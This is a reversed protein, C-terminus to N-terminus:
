ELQDSWRLFAAFDLYRELVGRQEDATRSGSMKYVFEALKGKEDLYLAIFRGLSYYARFNEGYVEREGAAALAALDPLKGAGRADRLQALRHTHGLRYAGDKWVAENYLSALGEDLWAPLPGLADSILAHALEHRLNGLPTSLNAVVTRRYRWYIGLDGERNEPGLADQLFRRYGATTEFLCVDVPPLRSGDVPLFRRHADEMVERALRAAARALKKSVRGRLVFETRGAGSVRALEPLDAAAAARAPEKGELTVAGSGFHALSAVLVICARLSM